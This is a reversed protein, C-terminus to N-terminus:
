REKGGSLCEIVSRVIAIHGDISPHVGDPGMYKPQAQQGFVAQTDVVPDSMGRMMEGIAIIDENRWSLHGMQFYPYAAARAEDFTPPTMWVWRSQSRAAAIRRIEHLNKATEEASVQTKASEPGVRMADNGGILCLIWDPQKSVIGNIRSLVQTSTNGSIGENILRIGDQPRQRELLHRLIEFWSLLDDTTSEGVGIVTEGAKFPLNDVLAAFDSNELLHEAVEKAQQILQAKVLLYTDVDMGYIAALVKDDLHRAYTLVKEPHQSQILKVWQPNLHTEM